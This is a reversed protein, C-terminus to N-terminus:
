FFSSISRYVAEIDETDGEYPQGGSAKAIEDLAEKAGVAGASYAITFVRVQDDSDGQARVARVVDDADASSDTDEGDTLVVVASIREPTADARVDEFGEITADYVATGGDAILNEVTARLRRENRAFPGVPIVPQIRDSFITLGVSDQSGVQDFFVDLGQKARKLPEVKRIECCGDPDWSWRLENEVPAAFLVFLRTADAGFAAIM